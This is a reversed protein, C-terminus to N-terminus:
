MLGKWLAREAANPDNEVRSVRDLIMTKRTELDFQPWAPLGDAAPTKGQIFAIWAAHMQAALGKAQEDQREAPSLKDWIFGLDESHYAEGEMRGSYSAYDLRYMWTDGKNAVQAEAVRVTPIWYEEATVARIEQQSLSMQPYLAAYEKLVTEVLNLPLNGLDSAKLPPKPHPGLFLASEDRNSGILLRKGRSSGAAILDVPRSPLLAGGVQERFPFHLSTTAILQEQTDILAAAPALLLDQPTVGVQKWLASFNQAVSAAQDRTLVREGGGSESIASHFLAASEPIARLAATVKAGASAGGVPVPTPAGGFAAINEHVWHLATVLDRTGNNGSDAYSPGLLPELDMFGFVGLRYALTVVVMGAQAFGAGDFIPAFSSGGTFGGGHIWVFVPYPGKGAPAWVNLYLCDESRTVGAEVKQMAEAAFKTADHVGSSSKLAVPPRFRLKGIPPEAFPVGRFVRVGQETAGQFTGSPATVISSEPASQAFLRVWPVFPYASVVTAANRLLTRRSLTCLMGDITAANRVAKVDCASKQAASLLVPVVLLLGASFLNDGAKM